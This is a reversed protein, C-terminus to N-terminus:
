RVAERQEAQLGAAVLRRVLVSQPEFRREAAERIAAALELPLRVTYVTFDRAPHDAADNQRTTRYLL